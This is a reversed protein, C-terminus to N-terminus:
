GVILRRVGGKSVALAAGDTSLAVEQVVACDVEAGCAYVAYTDLRIRTCLRMTYM